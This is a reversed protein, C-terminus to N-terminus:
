QLIVTCLKAHSFQHAFIEHCRGKLSILYLINLSMNQKIWCFSEATRQETCVQWIHIHVWHVTTASFALCHTCHKKNRYIKRGRSLQGDFLPPVVTTIVKQCCCNGMNRAWQLYIQSYALTQFVRIAQSYPIWILNSSVFSCYIYVTSIFLHLVM